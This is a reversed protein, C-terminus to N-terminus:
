RPYTPCNPNFMEDSGLMEFLKNGVMDGFCIDADYIEEYYNPHDSASSPLTDSEPIAYGFYNNALGVFILDRTPVADLLAPMAPYLYDDYVGDSEVSYPAVSEPRGTLYEPPFEAPATLFTLDGVTVRSMPTRICGTHTCWPARIVYEDEAFEPNRAVYTIIARYVPNSIKVDIWDTLIELTPNPTFPVKQIAEAAVTGIEMGISRARDEPGQAWQPFPQGSSNTGQYLPTGSVDYLPIPTGRLAGIQGGVTGSFFLAVGGLEQELTERAWHPYDSSLLQNEDLLVEPHDDFNVVSAVTHGASDVFQQIPVQMRRVWPDRLDNMTIHQDYPSTSNFNDDTYDSLDCESEVKLQLTQKDYCARPYTTASRVSVPVQAEWAAVAAAYMQDMLFHMYEPDVPGGWIGVTDPGQHTHTSAIIINTFPVGLTSELERKVPNMYQFLLGILDNAIFIVTTGNQSLVLSRSYLEDHVGVAARIDMGMFGGFGAIAVADFQRNGETGEPNTSRDYNDGDPDDVDDSTPSLYENTEDVLGDLDDDLEAFGPKKDPGLAGPEEWDWLQDRGTDYFTDTSPDYTANDEADTYLEYQTPTIIQYAAGAQLTTAGIRSNQRRAQERLKLARNKVLPDPSWEPMPSLDAPVDSHWLRALDGPSQTAFASTSIALLGAGVLASKPLVGM